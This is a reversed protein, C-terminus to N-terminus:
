TKASSGSDDRDTGSHVEKASVKISTLSLSRSSSMSSRIWWPVRPVNFTHLSRVSVLSRWEGTLQDKVQM